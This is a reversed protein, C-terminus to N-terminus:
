FFLFFSHQAIFRIFSSAFNLNSCLFQLHKRSHSCRKIKNQKNRQSWFTHIKNIKTMSVYYSFKWKIWLSCIGKRWSRMNESMWDKLATCNTGFFHLLDVVQEKLKMESTPSEMELAFLKWNEPTLQLQFILIWKRAMSRGCLEHRKGKRICSLKFLITWHFLWEIGWICRILLLWKDGRLWVLKPTLKGLFKNM